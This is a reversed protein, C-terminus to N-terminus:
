NTRGPLGAQLEEVSTQEFLRNPVTFGNFLAQTIPNFSKASRLRYRIIGSGARFGLDVSTQTRGYLAGRTLLRFMSWPGLYDMNSSGGNYRQLTLTSRMEPHAPNPWQVRTIIRPGHAYPIQQGDLDMLSSSQTATLGLPEISFQVSLNGRPDFFGERIRDATALSRRGEVSLGELDEGFLINLYREQFQQVRGKPGIFAKFDDLDADPGRGAFPYRGALRAQFFGYVDTQWRQEVETLAEAFLARNTEGAIKNIQTRLPEPLDSALQQLAAVPDGGKATLRQVAADLAAKGRDQSRHVARAHDHVASIARILDEYQSPQDRKEELLRNLGAFARHITESSSIHRASDVVKEPTPKQTNAQVTELLRRLPAVPGVLHGLVSVCDRLNDCDTMTLEALARQWRDIYGAAYLAQFQNALAAVDPEDLRPHAREAIAWQDMLAEEALPRFNETLNEATPLAEPRLLATSLDDAQAPRYILDFVQGIQQRLDLEGQRELQAPRNLYAELRQRLPIERVARQVESVRSDFLSLDADAHALAYDLHQMLERQVQGQGPYLTQWHKAMWSKVWRAERKPRDELMRYVRLAALQQESGAAAEDMAQVTMGALMPLLRQSLVMLYADDIVPGIVRGEYLGFSAVLSWASRYNGFVSVAAQMQKLHVLLNQVAAKDNNAVEVQRFIERKALVSEARNRNLDFYHHLTVGAAAAALLSLGSGLWLNRRKSAKVDHSDDALAAEPYIVRQFLHQAFYNHQTGQPEAINLPNVQLVSTLHLSRVSLPAAHLENSLAGQLYSSLAPCLMKLCAQLMLLRHRQEATVSRHVRLVTHAQVACVLANFYQDLEIQWCGSAGDGGSSFTIGLLSEKRQANFGELLEGFGELVDVKTLVIYLPLRLGTRVNLERLRARVQKAHAMRVEDSAHLLLTVDVVLVLGNLPQKSRNGVLWGVLHNWLRTETGPPLTPKQEDGEGQITFAGPPDIIVADSGFWCNVDHPAQQAYGQVKAMRTLSFQQNSRDILTTKGAGPAGIVLYWPLRYLVRRSGAHDFFAALQRNLHREQAQECALAPDAQLALKQDHEAVLRQYKVRLMMLWGVMPLMVMVVSILTRASVSELPQQGRVM